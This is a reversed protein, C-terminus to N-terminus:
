RVYCGSVSVQSKSRRSQTSSQESLRPVKSTSSPTSWTENHGDM